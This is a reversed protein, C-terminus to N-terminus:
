FREPRFPEKEADHMGEHRDIRSLLNRIDKQMQIKLEKDAEFYATHEQLRGDVRNMFDKVSSGGNEKRLSNRIKSYLFVVTTSVGGVIVVDNAIAGNNLPLVLSTALSALM